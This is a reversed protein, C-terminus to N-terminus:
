LLNIKSKKPTPVNQYSKKGMDKVLVRFCTLDLKGIVNLFREISDKDFMTEGYYLLLILIKLDM